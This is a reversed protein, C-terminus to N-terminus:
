RRRVGGYTLAEKQTLAGAGESSQEEERCAARGIKPIRTAMMPKAAATRATSASRPSGTAGCGEADGGSSFPSIAIPVYGPFPSSIPLACTQVGTVTRDRIGDEAQFFFFLRRPISPP